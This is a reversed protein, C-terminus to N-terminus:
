QGGEIEHYKRLRAIISVKSLVQCSVSGNSNMVQFRACSYAKSYSLGISIGYGARKGKGIGRRLGMLVRFGAGM